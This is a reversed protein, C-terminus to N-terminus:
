TILSYPLHCVVHLDTRYHTTQKFHIVRQNADPDIIATLRRMCHFYVTVSNYLVRDARLLLRIM